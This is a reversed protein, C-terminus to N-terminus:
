RSFYSFYVYWGRKPKVGSVPEANGLVPNKSKSRLAKQFHAAKKSDNTKQYM